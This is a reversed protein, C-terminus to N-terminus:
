RVKARPKWPRSTDVETWYASMVSVTAALAYKWYPAVVTYYVVAVYDFVSTRLSHSSDDRIRDVEATAPLVNGEERTTNKSKPSKNTPYVETPDIGVAIPEVGEENVADKPSASNPPEKAHPIQPEWSRSFIKRKGLITPPRVEAHHYPSLNRKHRFPERTWSTTVQQSLIPSNLNDRAGSPTNSEEVLEYM